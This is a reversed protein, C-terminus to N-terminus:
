TLSGGSKNTGAFVMEKDETMNRVKEATDWILNLIIKGLIERGELGMMNGPIFGLANMIPNESFNQLGSEAAMATNAYEGYKTEMQETPEGAIKDGAAAGLMAGIIMGKLGFPVGLAIGIAAGTGKPILNDIANWDGSIASSIDSIGEVGTEVMSQIQPTFREIANGIAPILDNAVSKFLPNLREGLAFSVKRTENAIQAMAPSVQPSLTALGTMATVGVASIKAFSSAVKSTINSLGMFSGTTSETQARVDDINLRIRRMGRDLDETNITGRIQLEGAEVM